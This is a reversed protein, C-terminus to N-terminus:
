TSKSRCALIWEMLNNRDRQMERLAVGKEDGESQGAGIAEGRRLGYRRSTWFRSLWDTLDSSSESWMEAHRLNGSPDFSVCAM